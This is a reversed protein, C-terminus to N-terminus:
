DRRVRQSGISLLRGPEETRPIREPLFVPTPQWARRCPIEGVWPGFGARKHRRCQCASEKNSTGGPFGLFEYRTPEQFDVARTLTYVEMQIM